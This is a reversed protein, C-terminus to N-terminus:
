ATTKSPVPPTLARISSLSVTSAPMAPPSLPPSLAPPFFVGGANRRASLLFWCRCATALATFGPQGCAGSQALLRDGEGVDNRALWAALAAARRAVDGYTLRRGGDVLALREPHIRARMAFLGAVSSTAARNVLGDIETASAM